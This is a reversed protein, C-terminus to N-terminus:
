SSACRSCRSSGTSTRLTRRSTSRAASASSSPPTLSLPSPSERAAKKTDRLRRRNAVPKVAQHCFSPSIRRLERARRSSTFVAIQQGPGNSCDHFPSAAFRRRAATFRRFVGMIQWVVRPSPERLSPARDMAIRRGGAATAQRRVREKPDFRERMLAKRRHLGKRTFKTRSRSENREHTAPAAQM